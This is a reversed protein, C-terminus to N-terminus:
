ENLKQKILNLTEELGVKNFDVYGVTSQVGPIETEDLRLPLIYEENQEFARAQASKRELSTWQKKSYSDSIIMLCYKARKKYVDSLHSYLDKGWLSAQEYEDYFVKYNELTLKDAIQKAVERDEGAFSIAIHYKLEDSKENNLTMASTKELIKSTNKLDPYFLEFISKITTKDFVKAKISDEIIDIIQLIEYKKLSILTDNFYSVSGGYMRLVAIAANFQCLMATVMSVSQYYKALERVDDHTLYNNELLFEVEFGYIISNRIDCLVTEAVEKSKENTIGMEKIIEPGIVNFPKSKDEFWKQEMRKISAFASIIMLREIPTGQKRKYLRINWLDTKKDKVYEIDARLYIEYKFSGIPLNEKDIISKYEDTLVFKSDPYIM